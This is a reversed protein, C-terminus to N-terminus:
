LTVIQSGHRISLRCGKIEAVLRRALEVTGELGSMPDLVLLLKGAGSKALKMLVKRAIRYRSSLAAGDTADNCAIVASHLHNEKGNYKKVRRMLRAELELPAESDLQMLVMTNDAEGLGALHNALWPTGRERVILHGINPISM